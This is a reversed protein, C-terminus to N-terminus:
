FAYGHHDSTGLRQQFIDKIPVEVATPSKPM